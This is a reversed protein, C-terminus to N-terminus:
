GGAETFQIGYYTVVEGDPSVFSFTNRQSRTGTSAPFSVTAGSRVTNVSSTDLFYLDRAFDTRDYGQSSGPLSTLLAYIRALPVVIGVQNKGPLMGQQNSGALFQYVGHLAELFRDSRFKPTKDQNRRLAAVLKTPRLSSVRKRDVRVASDTPLIRLISPFCILQDDRQHIKLQEAEAVALLEAEYSQRLYEAEADVSFPWAGAANSMEQRAVTAASTLREATRRIGTINGEQAAKEMQKAVRLLDSAAKVASAAARETDAFAQEFTSM